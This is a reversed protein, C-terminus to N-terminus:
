SFSATFLIGEPTEVPQIEDPLSIELAANFTVRLKLLVHSAKILSPLM